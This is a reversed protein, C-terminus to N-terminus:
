LRLCWTASLTELYNQQQIDHIFIGRNNMYKCCFSHNEISINTTSMPNTKLTTTDIDDQYFWWEVPYMGLISGHFYFSCGQIHLLQHIQHAIKCFLHIWSNPPCTWQWHSTCLSEKIIKHWFFIRNYDAVATNTSYYLLMCSKKTCSISQIM